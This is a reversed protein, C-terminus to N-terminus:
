RGEECIMDMWGELEWQGECGSGEGMDRRDGM